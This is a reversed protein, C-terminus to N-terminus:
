FASAGDNFSQLDPRLFRPLSGIPAHYDYDNETPKMEKSVFKINASFSREFLPILRHDLELFVKNSIAVLDNLVTAFM